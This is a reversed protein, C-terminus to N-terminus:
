NPNMPYITYIGNLLCRFCVLLFPIGFFNRKRKEYLNYKSILNELDEVPLFFLNALQNLTIKILKEDM